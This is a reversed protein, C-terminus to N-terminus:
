GNQKQSTSGPLNGLSKSVVSVLKNNNEFYTDECSCTVNNHM